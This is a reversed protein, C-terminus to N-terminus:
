GLAKVILFIGVLIGIFAPIQLQNFNFVSIVSILVGGAFYLGKKTDERMKRKEQIYCPFLM